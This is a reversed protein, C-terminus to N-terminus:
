YYPYPQASRLRWPDWRREPSEYRILLAPSLETNCHKDLVGLTRPEIGLIGGGGRFMRKYNPEKNSEKTLGKSPSIHRGVDIGRGRKPAPIPPSQTESLLAPLGPVRKTFCVLRLSM